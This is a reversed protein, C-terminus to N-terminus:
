YRFVEVRSLSPTERIVNIHVPIREKMEAVHSILGVKRGGLQHLRELTDMVNGLYEPSLTGFGEDIFIVDTDMGGSRLNSLALALSLSAMFSEGGSLISAPQADSPKYADKVLIALTGPNCTLTYRDTFSRMYLNANELLSQLIFSQAVARFKAGKQDGLRNYLGEWRDLEARAAELQMNKEEVSARAERDKSLIEGIQGISQSKSKIDAEAKAKLERLAELTEGDALGPRKENHKELREEHTKKAVNLDNVSKVADNIEKGLREMAKSDEGALRRLYDESIEPHVEYFSALQSAERERTEMNVRKEAEWIEISKKAAAAAEKAKELSTRVAAEETQMQQIKKYVAAAADQLKKTEEMRLAIGTREKEAAEKIEDLELSQMGDMDPLGDCLGADKILKGVKVSVANVAAEQKKIKVALSEMESSATVRLKEQVGLDAKLSNCKKDAEEKAERLPKLISVFMRDSVVAAVKSGCVPCMDGEKLNARIEKVTRNMSMELGKLADAKAKAEAEAERIPEKLSEVMQKASDFAKRRSEMNESYIELTKREGKLKESEKLFDALQKDKLSLAHYTDALEEPNFESYEKKGADLSSLIGKLKETEAKERESAENLKKELQPKLLEKKSLLKEITNLNKLAIRGEASAEYDDVLRRKEAFAESEVAAKLASAKKDTEELEKLIEENTALWGIKTEVEQRQKSLAATEAELRALSENYQEISEDTLLSAKEIEQRISDWAARRSNYKEAIKMGIKSYIETGTLKELIESKDKGTSKIFKTFEGQALMVTRCFQEYQLGTVEAIKANIETQRYDSFSGDAAELWRRPKQLRYDPKDYNRHIEWKAVYDVGSKGEFLLEAFGEGAGRRLLQSNDNAYYRNRTDGITLELEEKSASAMRPTNGYLALCIADLLTSKGAGTEGCILFIPAGGLIDGCFDITADAISALNHITLRKLQM